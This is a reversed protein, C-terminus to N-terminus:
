VKISSSLYEQYLLSRRRPGNNKIHQNYHVLSNSKPSKASNSTRNLLDKQHHHEKKDKQRWKTYIQRKEIIEKISVLEDIEVKLEYKENREAERIEEDTIFQSQKYKKHKEEYKQLTKMFNDWEEYPNSIDYFTNAKQLELSILCSVNYIFHLNGQNM